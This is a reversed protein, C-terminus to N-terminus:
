YYIIVRNFTAYFLTMFFTGYFNKSVSLSKCSRFLFKKKITARACVRLCVWMAEVQRQEGEMVGLVTGGKTNMCWGKLGLKKGQEQTYQFLPM